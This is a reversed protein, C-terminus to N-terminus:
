SKKEEATLDGSATIIAGGVEYMLDKGAVPRFKQEIFKDSLRGAVRQENDLDIGPLNEIQKVCLRFAERRPADLTGAISLARCNELEVITLRRVIFKVPNESADIYEALDEAGIDYRTAGMFYKFVPHTASNEMEDMEKNIVDMKWSLDGKSIYVIAADSNYQPPLSM